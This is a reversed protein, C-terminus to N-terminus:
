CKGAAKSLANCSADSSGSSGAGPKAQKGIENCIPDSVMRGMYSITGTVYCSYKKGSNTKVSYDTKIGSDVRDSITFAGKELGLSTATKQEIADSSVAVSACGATFVIFGTAAISVLRNFKNM